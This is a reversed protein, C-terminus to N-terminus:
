WYNYSYHFPQLLLTNLTSRLLNKYSCPLLISTTHNQEYASTM